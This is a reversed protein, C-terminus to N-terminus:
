SQLNRSGSSGNGPATPPTTRAGTSNNVFTVQPLKYGYSIGSNEYNFKITDTYFPSIIRTLHWSTAHPKGYYASVTPGNGLGFYSLDINITTHEIDDFDYKVGDETVIRFSKLTQNFLSATQFTPIIKVKSLPVSAIQGNKGMYFRGSGGPCNFQFIDPQTDVSDHYYKNGDARWDSPIASAYLYGYTPVDDPLGRVTRTIIGGANLYWGLGVVSPSEAVQIGGGSYELSVSMGIGSNNKFSYIPVSIAPIGTFLNVASSGMKSAQAGTPPLLASNAYNPAEAQASAANVAGLMGFFLIIRKM